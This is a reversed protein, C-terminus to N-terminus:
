TAILQFYWLTPRTRDISCVNAENVLEITYCDRESLCACCRSHLTHTSVLDKIEFFRSSGDTINLHLTIGVQSRHYSKRSCPLLDSFALLDHRPYCTYHFM